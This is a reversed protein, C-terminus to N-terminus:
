RAPTARWGSGDATTLRGQPIRPAIAFSPSSDSGRRRQRPPAVQPEELVLGPRGLRRLRDNGCGRESAALHPVDPRAKLFVAVAAARAVLDDHGAERASRYAMAVERRLPKDAEDVHPPQIGKM